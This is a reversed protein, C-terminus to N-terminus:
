PGVQLEYTVTLYFAGSPADRAIAVVRRHVHAVVGTAVDGLVSALQRFQQFRQQLASRDVDVLEHNEGVAHTTADRAARVVVVRERPM